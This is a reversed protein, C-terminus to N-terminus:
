GPWANRAKARSDHSSAFRTTQGVRLSVSCVVPMTNAKTNRIANKRHTTSVPSSHTVCFSSPCPPQHIHRHTPVDHVGVGALLLADLGREDVADLARAHLVLEPLHQHGGLFHHL